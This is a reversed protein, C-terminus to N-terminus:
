NPPWSCPRGQSRDPNFPVAVVKCTGVSYDNCDLSGQNINKSERIEDALERLTYAVMEPIVDGEKHEALGALALFHPRTLDLTIQLQM